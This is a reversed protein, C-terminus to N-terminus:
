CGVFVHTRGRRPATPFQALHTAQTLCRVPQDVGKLRGPPRLVNLGARECCIPHRKSVPRRIEVASLETVENGALTSSAM